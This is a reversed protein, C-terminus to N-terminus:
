GVLLYILPYEDQLICRLRKLAAQNDYLIAQVDKINSFILKSINQYAKFKLMVKISKTNGNEGEFHLNCM